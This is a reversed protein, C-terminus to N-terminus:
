CQQICRSTRNVQDICANGKPLEKVVLCGTWLDPAIFNEIHYYKGDVTFAVFLLGDKHGKQIMCIHMLMNINSKMVAEGEFKSNCQSQKSSRIKLDKFVNVIVYLTRVTKNEIIRM